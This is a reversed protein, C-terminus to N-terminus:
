LARFFGPYLCVKCLASIVQMDVRYMASLIVKLLVVFMQLAVFNSLCMDVPKYINAVKSAKYCILIFSMSNSIVFFVPFSSSFCPRQGLLNSIM